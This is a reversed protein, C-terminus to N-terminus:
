VVRTESAFKIITVHEKKKQEREGSECRKKEREVQLVMQDLDM